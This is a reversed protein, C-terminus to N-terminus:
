RPSARGLPNDHMGAQWISVKEAQWTEKPGVTIATKPVMTINGGGSTRANQSLTIPHVPIIAPTFARLMPKIRTVPNM